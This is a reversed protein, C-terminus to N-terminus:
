LKRAITDTVITAVRDATPIISDIPKNIAGPAIAKKSVFLNLWISIM